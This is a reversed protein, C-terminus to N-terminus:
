AVGQPKVKAIQFKKAKNMSMIMWFHYPSLTDTKIPNYSQNQHVDPRFHFVSRMSVVYISWPKSM